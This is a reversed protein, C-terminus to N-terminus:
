KVSDAVQKYGGTNLSSLFRLIRIPSVLPFFEVLNEM